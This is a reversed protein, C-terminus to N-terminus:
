PIARVLLDEGIDLDLPQDLHRGLVALHLLPWASYMWLTKRKPSSSTESTITWRVLIIVTLASSGGSSIMSSTSALRTCARAATARALRLVDDADQMGLIQQARHLRDSPSRDFISMAAIARGGQNTGSM